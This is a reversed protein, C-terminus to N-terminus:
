RGEQAAPAEDGMLPASAMGRGEVLGTTSLRDEVESARAGLKATLALGVLLVVAVASVGVWLAPLLPVPADQTEEPFLDPALPGPLDQRRRIDNTLGERVDRLDKAKEGSYEGTLGFALCKLFIELVPLPTKKDARLGDLDRFVERGLTERGYLEFQLSGWGESFGETTCRRAIEDILAVVPGQVADVWRETVGDALLTQRAQMVDRMARQRIASAHGAHVQGEALKAVLLFADLYAERLSRDQAAEGREM